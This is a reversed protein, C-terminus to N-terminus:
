APNQVRGCDWKKVEALTLEHINAKPQPGNCVPPQLAPDHSVVLVGDKTVNMDLELVDVGADIAYRFAPITNEPRRARAGRHGQVEIRPTPTEAALLGLIAFAFAIRM